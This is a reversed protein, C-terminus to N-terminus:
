TSSPADAGRRRERAAEGCAAALALPVHRQEIMGVVHVAHEGAVEAGRASAEVAVTRSPLRGAVGLRKRHHLRQRQVVDHAVHVLQRVVHHRPLDEQREGGRAMRRGGRRSEGGVDHALPEGLRLIEIGPSTSSFPEPSDRLLADGGASERPQERRGIRARHALFEDLESATAAISPVSCRPEEVARHGALRQELGARELAHAREGTVHDVGFPAAEITTASM